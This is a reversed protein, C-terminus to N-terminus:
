RLKGGTLKKCMNYLSKTFIGYGNSKTLYSVFMYIAFLFILVVGLKIILIGTAQNINLRKKLMIAIATITSVGALDKLLESRMFGINSFSVYGKGKLRILYLVFVASVVVSTALAIGGIGMRKSLFIDALANLIVAFITIILPSVTDKYSLFVNRLVINVAAFLIGFSYMSVAFSTEVASSLGFAGHQFVVRIIQPSYVVFIATLPLMIFFLLSIVKRFIAIHSESQKAAAFSSFSPYAAAAVPVAILGIPLRYILQAYNLSAVAGYHLSSAVTKDVLEYLVGVGSTLIVPFVMIFFKKIESLDISKFDFRRFFGKKGFLYLFLASFSFVAFVVEGVAWSIIGFRKQLCFISLPILMNGLLVIVSPYLFQREAQSIGMLFGIFVNLFGYIILIKIYFVALDMRTKGFGYAVIKIFFSPFIVILVSLIGVFILNLIFIVNVLLKAYQVNEKKHAIYVPVIVMKFGNGIIGLLLSPILMAIVFADVKASTGFYYAVLVTRLYGFLKSILTVVILIVSAETVSQWKFIRKNGFSKFSM